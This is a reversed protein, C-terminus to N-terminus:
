ARRRRRTLVLAVAVVVGGVIVLWWWWAFGGAPDAPSAVVHLISSTEPHSLAAIAGAVMRFKGTTKPRVYFVFSRSQGGNLPPLTAVRPALPALRGTGEVTVHGVVTRLGGANKVIVRMPVRQGVRASPPLRLQLALRPPTVPAYVIASDPYVVVRAVHAHDGASHEVVVGFSNAGARVGAYPIYNEFRGRWVLHSGRQVVHGAVLGLSDSSVSVRGSRLRHIDFIIQASYGGDTDVSVTVEGPGTDPAIDVEYHLRIRFWNVPGQRVGEPLRFARAVVLQQFQGRGPHMVIGALGLRAFTWTGTRAILVDKGKPSASAPGALALGVIIVLL